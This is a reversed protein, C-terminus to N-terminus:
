FVTFPFLHSLSLVFSEVFYYVVRIDSIADSLLVCYVSCYAKAKNREKGRVPERLRQLLTGYTVLVNCCRVAYMLVCFLVDYYLVACFLVSCHVVITPLVLESLLLLPVGCQCQVIRRVRLEILDHM